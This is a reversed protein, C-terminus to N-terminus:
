PAYPAVEIGWRNDTLGLYQHIDARYSLGEEPVGLAELERRVRYVDAADLFSWTGVHIVHAHTALTRTSCRAFPGLHGVLTAKALLFWLADVRHTPVPVAWAGSVVAHKQALFVVADRTPTSGAVLAAWDQLLAQINPPDGYPVPTHLRNRPCQVFLWHATGSNTSSPPYTTFFEDFSQGDHLQLCRTYTTAAAHDHHAQHLTAAYEDLIDAPPGGCM